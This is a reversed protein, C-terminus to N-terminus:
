FRVWAYSGSDDSSEIVSVAARVELQVRYLLTKIAIRYPIERYKNVNHLDPSFAHM